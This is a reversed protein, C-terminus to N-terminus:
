VSAISKKEKQAEEEQEQEQDKRLQVINQDLRGVFFIAPPLALKRCGSNM